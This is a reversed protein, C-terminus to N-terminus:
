NSIISHKPGCTFIIDARGRLTIEQKTQTNVRLRRKVLNLNKTISLSVQCILDRTHHEIM